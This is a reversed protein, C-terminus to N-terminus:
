RRPEDDTAAFPLLATMGTMELVQTVGPQLGPALQLDADGRVLADLLRIGTSDMFPVATLDLLVPGDRLAERTVREVEPSTALDIEGAVVVITRGGGSPRDVAVSFEPPQQVGPM